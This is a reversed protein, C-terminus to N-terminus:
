SRGGVYAEGLQLVGNAAYFGGMVTSTVAKSAKEQDMRAGFELLRALLTCVNATTEEKIVDAPALGPLVLLGIIGSVVHGSIFLRRETEHDLSIPIANTKDDDGLLHPAADPTARLRRPGPVPRFPVKDSFPDGVPFPADSRAIKYVITAPVAGILCLVDLV